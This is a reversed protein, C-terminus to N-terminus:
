IARVQMRVNRKAVRDVIGNGVAQGVSRAQAESPVVGQFQIVISGETFTIAGAGAQTGGANAIASGIRRLARSDTLPIVGEAKNGEGMEALTNQTVLGGKALKPISPITPITVDDFFPLNNIGEEVRDLGRNIPAIVYSNIVGIVSNALGKSFDTFNGSFGLGKWLNNILTKGATLMSPGLNKITEPLKKIADAIANASSVGKELLFNFAPRIADMLFIFADATVDIIGALGILAATLPPLVIRGLAVLALFLDKAISWLAKGIPLLERIATKADEFVQKLDVNKVFDAIKLLVERVFVGLNDGFEGSDGALSFFADLLPQIAPTIEELFRALGTLLKDMSEQAADSGLFSLVEKFIGGFGAAVRALTPQLEKINDVIPQILPATGSFFAEQIADAVGGLQTKASVLALVFAQASKTLGNFAERQKGAGASTRQQAAALADQAALLRDQAALVADANDVGKKTADANERALDRRKEGADTVAQEAEAFAVEAERIEDPTGFARAEALSRRAVELNRSARLEEVAARSLEIRLDHIKEAAEERAKTLERQASLVNRQAAALQRASAGVSGGGGASSETLEGFADGVGNLAVALVGFAGAAAFVLGPLAALGAGAIIAFNQVAVAAVAVVGTLAVFAAALIAIGAPGAAGIQGLTGFMQTLAKGLGGLGFSTAEAASEGIQKFADAGTKGMSLFRGSADRLRGRSDRFVGEIGEGAKKFSKEINTASAAAEKEIDKLAASVEKSLERKFEKSNAVIEVYAVDIPQTM